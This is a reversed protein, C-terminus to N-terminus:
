FFIFFFCRHLAGPNDLLQQICSDLIWQVQNLDLSCLQVIAYSILALIEFIPLNFQIIFSHSLVQRVYYQDVSLLWGVDDHTHPIIFVEIM